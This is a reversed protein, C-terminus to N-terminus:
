PNRSMVVISAELKNLKRMVIGSKMYYKPSNEHTATTGANIHHRTCDSIQTWCYQPKGEKPPREECTNICGCKLEYFERM